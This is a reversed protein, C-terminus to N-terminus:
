VHRLPPDERANPPPDYTRSSRRAMRIVAELSESCEPGSPGKYERGHGGGRREEDDAAVGERPRMEGLREELGAVLHEGRAARGLRARHEEGVAPGLEGPSTRPAELNAAEVQVLIPGRDEGEDVLPSGFVDHVEGGLAHDGLAPVAGHVPEPRVRERRDCEVLLQATAREEAAVDVDRCGLHVPAALTEHALVRWEVRARGVGYGPGRGVHTEPGEVRAPAERDDRRAGRVDEPGPLLEVPDDRARDETGQRLLLELEVATAPRHAGEDVHAVHGLSGEM